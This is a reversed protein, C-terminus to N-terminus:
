VITIDFAQLLGTAEPLSFKAKKIKNTNPNIDYQVASSFDANSLDCNHFVTGSLDVNKFDAGKLVTNTFDNEKLKSGDFSSSKMNLDSFNCYNIQCNKFNASFFTKDCKYFGIGM